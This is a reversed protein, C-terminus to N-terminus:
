STNEQHPVRTYRVVVVALWPMRVSEDCIHVKGFFMVNSPRYCRMCPDHCYLLLGSSNLDGMGEQIGSSWGDNSNDSPASVHIDM